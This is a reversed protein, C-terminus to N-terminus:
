PAATTTTVGSSTSTTAPTEAITVKKVTVKKTPKGDGSPPSLQGIQDAVDQGSTLHGILAYDPTPLPTGTGTVIFWQSGATGAPDVGNKGFAMTGVPYYNGNTATPVEGKVSYGPDGAQTNDPSGAQIVFDKAVRVFDTGNYFGKRALYVFNNVSKPAEAAALDVVMTGMSTDITARYSSSPDITMKPASLDTSSKSGRSSDDSNTLQLIVFLIVLPVLLLGINRATRNRRKRKEAELMAQRRADRNQRQRERKTAKPV